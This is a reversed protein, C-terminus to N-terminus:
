LGERYNIYVLLLLLAIGLIFWFGLIVLAENLYQVGRNFIVATLVRIGAATPLFRCVEAGVSFELPNIAGSVIWLTLSILIAPVPVLRFDGIKLGYSVGLLGFPFSLCLFVMWFASFSYLSPCTVGYLVFNLILLVSVCIASILVTALTKGIRTYIIGHQSMTIETFTNKDKEEAGLTGGYFLSTFCTVWVLVGWIMYNARPLEVEYVRDATFTIGPQDDRNLQYQQMFQYIRSELGLRINKSLDEHINNIRAYIEVAHGTTLNEEFGHPITVIAFAQRQAFLIDAQEHNTFYVEFYPITGNKANLTELFLETYSGPTIPADEVIVPLPFGTGVTFTFVQTFIFTFFFPSILGIAIIIRNRQWSKFSKIFEAYIEAIM